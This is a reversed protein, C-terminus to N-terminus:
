NSGIRIANFAMGAYTSTGTPIWTSTVAYVPTNSTVRLVKTLSGFSNFSGATAPQPQTGSSSDFSGSSTSISLANFTFTGSVIFQISASVLWTGPTLTLNGVNQTVVGNAFSGTASSASTIIEGIYGAPLVAGTEAAKVPGQVYLASNSPQDLPIVSITTVADSDTYVYCRGAGFVRNGQLFFTRNGVSTNRYIGGITQGEVEQNPSTADGTTLVSAGTIQPGGTASDALAFRCFTTAGSGANNAGLLGTATIYYNGVPMNEITISHDNNTEVKAKGFATRTLTTFSTFKAWANTTVFNSYGNGQLKVGAFTNQREPTVVLESSSPFRKISMVNRASGSELNINAGSNQFLNLQIEDGVALPITGFIMGDVYYTGAAQREVRQSTFAASNKLLSLETTESQVWGGANTLLTMAEIAYVGARKAKFIGTATNYEDYVDLAKNTFIIKTSAGNVITTTSTNVIAVTEAQAVNAMNTALGVYIGGIENTGALIATDTVQFTTAASL